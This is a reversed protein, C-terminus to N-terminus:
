SRRRAEEVEGARKDLQATFTGLRRRLARINTMVAKPAPGGDHDKRAAIEAPSGVDLTLTSNSGAKKALKRVIEPDVSGRGLAESEKVATSAVNYAARFPLGSERALVDAVDVADVFNERASQEARGANVKLTEFVGTFVIPADVAEDFIDLILYKTWQTDRNYGSLAGRAIGFLTSTLNQILAAKARTVEAFDPNRKQPM